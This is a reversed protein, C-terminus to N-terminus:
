GACGAAGREVGIVEEVVVLVSDGYRLILCLLTPNVGRSLRFRFGSPSGTTLWYLFTFSNREIKNKMTTKLEM